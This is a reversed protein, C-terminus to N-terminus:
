YFDRYEVYSEYKQEYTTIHGRRIEVLKDLVSGCVGSTGRLCYIAVEIALIARISEAQALPVGGTGEGEWDIERESESFYEEPTTIDLDIYM